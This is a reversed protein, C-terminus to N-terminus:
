GRLREEFSMQLRKKQWKLYENYEEQAKKKRFDDIMVSICFVVLPCVLIAIMVFMTRHEEPIVANVLARLAMGALVMVLGALLVAIFGIVANIAMEKLYTAVTIKRAVATDKM